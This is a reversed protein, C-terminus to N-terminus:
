LSLHSGCPLCKDIEDRPFLLVDDADDARSARGTSFREAGDSLEEVVGEDTIRGLAYMEGVVKAVVKKAGDRSGFNVGGGEPFYVQLELPTLRDKDRFDPVHVKFQVLFIGAVFQLAADVHGIGVAAQGFHDPDRPLRHLPLAIVGNVVVNGGFQVM